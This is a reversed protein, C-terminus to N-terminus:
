KDSGLFVCSSSGIQLQIANTGIERPDNSVAKRGSQGIPYAFDGIVQVDGCAVLPSDRAAGVIHASVKQPIALAVALERARLQLHVNPRPTPATRSPSPSPLSPRKPLHPM